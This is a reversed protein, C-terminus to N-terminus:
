AALINTVLFGSVPSALKTVGHRVVHGDTYEHKEEDFVQVKMESGKHYRQVTSYNPAGINGDIGGVQSTIVASDFSKVYRRPAPSGTISALDGDAQVLESVRVAHEVVVTFGYLKAPLQWVGNPNAAGKQVLADAYLSEKYIAHIEPTAALRLAAHPNIVLNLGVDEVNEYDGVIGNTLLNIREAIEGLAKKLVPDEPTGQDWQAGGRLDVANATNGEWNSATECLSIVETTWDIMCENEASRTNAMLVNFDARQITEWGIQFDYDYRICQFEVTKHRVRQGTVEPRKQGDEWVAKERRTFRVFDDPHIHYYVGIANETKVLQTYKNIKYKKPDRAHAIVQGTAKPVYANFQGTAVYPM